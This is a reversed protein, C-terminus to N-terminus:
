YLDCSDAINQRYHNFAVRVSHQICPLQEAFRNWIEPNIYPKKWNRDPLGAQELVDKCVAVLGSWHVNHHRDHQIHHVISGLMQAVDLLELLAHDDTPLHLLRLEAGVKYGHQIDHEGEKQFLGAFGKRAWAKSQGENLFGRKIRESTCAFSELVLAIYHMDRTVELGGFTIHLSHNSGPILGNARIIAVQTALLSVDTVPDFAFEWYRDAGRPVGCEVTKMLRPVLDVERRDCEIKISEMLDDDINPMGDVWLDPFYDRWPVEIEIGIPVIRCQTQALTTPKIPFASTLNAITITAKDNMHTMRIDTLPNFFVVSKENM